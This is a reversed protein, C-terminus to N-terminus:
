LLELLMRLTGRVDLRESPVFHTCADCAKRLQSWGKACREQYKPSGEPKKGNRLLEGIKDKVNVKGQRQLEIEFPYHLCPNIINFVLMGYAWMDARKLDELSAGGAASGSVLLIEPAMFPLTERELDM